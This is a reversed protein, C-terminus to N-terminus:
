RGASPGCRVAPPDTLTLRQEHRMGHVTYRIWVAELAAVPRGPPALGTEPTSTLVPTM